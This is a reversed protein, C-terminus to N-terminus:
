PMDPKALFIETRLANRNDGGIGGANTGRTYMLWLGDGFRQSPRTWDWAELAPLWNAANPDHDTVNVLALRNGKKNFVAVFLEMRPHGWGWPGGSPDAFFSFWLNGQDDRSLSTSGGHGILLGNLADALDIRHWGDPEHHFMVGSKHGPLSCFFWPQGDADVVHNSKSLGRGQEGKEVRCVPQLTEITLPTEVLHGNQLWTNGGDKSTMYSVARGWGDASRGTDSYHFQFVLHLSGEPGVTLSQMFHNYGPVPSTALAVPEQWTHDPKKRRLWLQWRKEGETEKANQERYALYLTGKEDVTLAPYTSKGSLTDPASWSESHEPQDSWRYLFPTHHGGVIAHIRGNNDMVLAPGCHNDKAEGIQFSHRLRGTEPDCIGIMVRSLLGKHRPADLWGVILADDRRIIRRSMNYATGRDSGERSLRHHHKINQQEARLTFVLM